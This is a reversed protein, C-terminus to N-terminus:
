LLDERQLKQHIEWGDLNELGSARANLLTQKLAAREGEVDELAAVWILVKGSSAEFTLRTVIFEVGNPNIVLRGVLDPADMEKIKASM